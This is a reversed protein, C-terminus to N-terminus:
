ACEVYYSKTFLICAIIYYYFLFNNM